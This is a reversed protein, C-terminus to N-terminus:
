AIVGKETGDALLSSVDPLERDIQFVIMLLENNASSGLQKKNGSFQRQYHEVWQCLAEITESDIRCDTLQRQIEATNLRSPILGARQSLYIGLQTLPEAGAQLQSKFRAYPSRDRRVQLYRKIAPVCRIFFLLPPMVLLLLILFRIQHSNLAQRSLMSQGWLHAWIGKDSAIVQNMLKVDEPLESDAFNFQSVEAVDLPVPATIYDRFQSTVPDFYNIVLSPIETIDPKDPFLTQRIIKQGRQYVAADPVVPCILLRM